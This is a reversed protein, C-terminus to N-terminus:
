KQESCLVMKNGKGTIVSYFQFLFTCVESLKITYRLIVSTRTTPGFALTLFPWKSKAVPSDEEGYDNLESFLHSKNRNFYVYCM